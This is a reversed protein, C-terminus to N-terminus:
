SRPGVASRTPGATSSSMPPPAAQRAGRGRDPDARGPEPRRRGQAGPGGGIWRAPGAPRDRDGRHRPPPRGGHLRRGTPRGEGGPDSRRHGRVAARGRPRDARGRGAGPVRSVRRGDRDPRQGRPQTGSQVLDQLAQVAGDLADSIRLSHGTRLREALELLSAAPTGTFLLYAIAGASFVDMHPGAAIADPRLAEPALYVRSPEEVYDEIHRTGQTRLLTAGATAERVERDALEPDAPHAQRERPVQGAREPPGPRPSLAAPRPRVQADRRAPPDGAAAPGPRPAGARPPLLRAAQCGPRARVGAGPREGDGQLRPAQRDGRPDRRAGPVRAAGGEEPRRADARGAGGAFPYVRIRRHVGASVHM